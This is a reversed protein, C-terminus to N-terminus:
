EEEDEIEQEQKQLQTSFIDFSVFYLNSKYM